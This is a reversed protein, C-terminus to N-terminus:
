RRDGVLCPGRADSRGTGHHGAVAVGARYRDTHIPAAKSQRASHVGAFPGGLQYPGM